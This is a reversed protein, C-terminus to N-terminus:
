EVRSCGETQAPWREVRAKTACTVDSGCHGCSGEALPSLGVSDCGLKDRDMVFGPDAICPTTFVGWMELSIGCVDWPINEKSFQGWVLSLWAPCLLSTKSFSIDLIGHGSAKLLLQYFVFVKLAHTWILRFDTILWHSVKWPDSCMGAKATKFLGLWPSYYDLFIWLPAWPLFCFESKRSDGMHQGPVSLWLNTKNGIFALSSQIWLPSSSCWCASFLFLSLTIGILLHNEEM